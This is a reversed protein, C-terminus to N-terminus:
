NKLDNTENSLLTQLVAHKIKILDKLERLENALIEIKENGQDVKMQLTVFVNNFPNEFNTAKNNNDINKFSQTVSSGKSSITHGHPKKTKAIDYAATLIDRPLRKEGPNLPKVRLVVRYASPSVLASWYLLKSLFHPLRAYFLALEMHSILKTQRVLKSLEASKMLGQIDHVAIGVLLNMMVITVFMVFLVFTIQASFELLFPSSNEGEPDLVDTALEGIMMALVTIFGIIPNAFSSTSPFIVCFCVTFGILICSYALFLKAFEKQVKLYMAVYSGFVPLQGIMIMLNTWGALVAFAGVHNQWTYTSNTFVCSVLFVSIIVFWEIVNESQTFYQKVTYYGAIGSFKRFIEFLTITALFWWLLEVVFRNKRLVIGFVSKNKCLDDDITQNGTNNVSDIQTNNVSKMQDDNYCNHALAILVYFSLSVVFIFNLLLKAVFYKRIKQWKIHLFASCLPHLLIEKQGEEVFTNLFAMERPHFHQLINRFDLEMEVERNASHHTSHLSIADDLKNYIMEISAPTKRAIVNLASNGKKAKTTVDAGHYILTEVCQSLGDLSALHLPTFGYEDKQNVNAGWSILTEIIDFTTESIRIAAHLPTRKNYDEANPDANGNKLLSEVCELSSCGAALHLATFGRHNKLSADAGNRLLLDVCELNGDDAALHLATSEKDGIRTRTNVDANKSKLLIELCTTMGLDAALHIPNTGSPEISNVDVDEAIFIQLCEAANSRVACHLISEECKTKKQLSVSAGNNILLKAIEPQNGFAACHLPSFCKTVMNVDAGKSILFNTCTLCGVFSSIHVASLGEDDSFHIDVGAQLMPELLNWRKHFIAWLFCLNKETIPANEFTTFADDSTFTESTLDELLSTRISAQRAQEMLDQRIADSCVQVSLETSSEEYSDFMNPASEAPPTSGVVMYTSSEPSPTKDFFDAKSNKRRFISMSSITKRKINVIPLEECSQSVNPAVDSSPFSRFSVNRHDPSSKIRSRKPAKLVVESECRLNDM